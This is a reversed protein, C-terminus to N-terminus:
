FGHPIQTLPLSFDYLFLVALSATRVFLLIPHINILHQWIWSLACPMGPCVVSADSPIAFHCRVSDVCLTCTLGKCEATLLIMYTNRQLAHKEMKHLRVMAIKWFKLSDTKQGFSKLYDSIHIFIVTINSTSFLAPQQQMQGATSRFSVLATFLFAEIFMFSCKIM